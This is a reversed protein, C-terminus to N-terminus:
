AGQENFRSSIPSATIVVICRHSMGRGTKRRIAHAENIAIRWGPAARDVKLSRSRPLHQDPEQADALEHGVLPTAMAVLLRSATQYRKGVEKDGVV